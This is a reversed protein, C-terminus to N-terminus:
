ANKFEKEPYAIPTQYRDYDGYGKSMGAAPASIYEEWVKQASKEPAKYVASFQEQVPTRMAKMQESLWDLPIGGAKKESESTTLYPEFAGRSGEGTVRAGIRAIALQTEYGRGGLEYQKAYWDEMMEMETERLGVEEGWKEKEWALGKGFETKREELESYYQELSGLYAGRKTAEAKTAVGYAGPKTYAAETPTFMGFERDPM